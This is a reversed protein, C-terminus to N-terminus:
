LHLRIYRRNRGGKDKCLNYCRPGSIILSILDFWLMKKYIVPVIFWKKQEPKRIIQGRLYHTVDSASMNVFERESVFSCKIQINYRKIGQTLCNLIYM